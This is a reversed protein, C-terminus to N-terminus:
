YLVIEDVMIKSTNGEHSHGKPIPNVSKAIIKISKVKTKDFGIETKVKNRGQTHSKELQNIVALKTYSKGDQSGYVEVLIGEVMSPNARSTRVNRLEEKLHEVATQMKKKVDGLLDM